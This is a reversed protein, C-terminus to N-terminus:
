QSVPEPWEMLLPEDMDKGEFTPNASIDMRIGTGHVSLFRAARAALETHQDPDTLWTLVRRIDSRYRIALDNMSSGDRMDRCEAIDDKDGGVWDMCDSLLTQFEQEHVVAKSQNDQANSYRALSKWIRWSRLQRLQLKALKAM